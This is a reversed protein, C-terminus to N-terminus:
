GAASGDAGPAWRGRVQLREAGDWPAHTITLDEVDAGSLGIATRGWGALVLGHCRTMGSYGDVALDAAREGAAEVTVEGFDFYSGWIQALGKMTRLPDGKTLFLKHVGLLMESANAEGMRMAAEDSGGLMQEHVACLLEEFPEFPYWESILIQEDLLRRAEDSLGDLQGAEVGSQALKVLLVLNTGKAHRPM